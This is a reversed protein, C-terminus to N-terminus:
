SIDEPDQEDIAKCKAEYEELAQSIIAEYKEFEEWAPNPILKYEKLAPESIALCEEWAEDKQQQKNM